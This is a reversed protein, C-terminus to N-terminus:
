EVKQHINKRRRIGATDILTLDRSHHKFDVHITDRTTGPQNQTLLRDEKLISNIFTSKGVNPRGILAISTTTEPLEIRNVENVKLQM